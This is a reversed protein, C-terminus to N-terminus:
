IKLSFAFKNNIKKKCLLLSIYYMFISLLAIIGAHSEKLELVLFVILTTILIVLPILYVLVIASYGLSKEMQVIVCDGEKLNYSGKIDITKEQKGSVSCVGEAHCGSCASVSTIAVTVFKDDIKKVIGEHNVTKSGPM